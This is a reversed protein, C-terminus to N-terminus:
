VSSGGCERRLQNHDETGRFIWSRQVVNDASILFAAPVGQVQLKDMIDPSYRVVTGRRIQAEFEKIKPNQYVAAWTIPLRTAADPAAADQLAASHCHPCLPGFAVLLRCQGEFGPSAPALSDPGVFRFTLDPLSKSDKFSSILIPGKNSQTYTYGLMGVTGVSLVGYFAVNTITKWKM